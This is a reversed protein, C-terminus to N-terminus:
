VFDRIFRGHRTVYLRAPSEYPLSPDGIMFNTVDELVTRTIKPMNLGSLDTMDLWQVNHLEDSDRTLRTDLRLEDAYCCFFRTDYRRVNGPPTIARAVYRFRSLDPGQASQGLDVGTEELLERAAALALARAGATSLRRAASATLRHLVAPHLDGSFPLAHDRPDRKGGPFVYAGPMFVHASSRQGMLVRLQPGSRDFLIISAADRPRMAASATEADRPPQPM